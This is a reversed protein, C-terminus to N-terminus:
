KELRRTRMDAGKLALALGAAVLAMSIPGTYNGGGFSQVYDHIQSLLESESFGMFQSAAAIASAASVGLGGRIMAKERRSARRSDLDNMEDEEEDMRRMSTEHGLLKKKLMSMKRPSLNSSFFDAIMEVPDEEENEEFDDEEYMEMGLDQKEGKRSLEAEYIYKKRKEELVINKILRTLERETLRVVKKM